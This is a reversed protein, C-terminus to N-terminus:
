RLWYGSDVVCHFLAAYGASGIVVLVMDITPKAVLGPVATAGAHEIRLARHGLVARIRVAERSFLEPWQADYDVILIRGALPKLAGITHTRIQEETLPPRNAFPKTEKSM